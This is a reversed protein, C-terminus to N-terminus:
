KRIAKLTVTRRFNINKQRSNEKLKYQEKTVGTLLFDKISLNHNSAIMKM